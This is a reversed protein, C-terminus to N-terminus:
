NRNSEYIAEVILKNLSNINVRIDKRRFIKFRHEDRYCYYKLRLTASLEFYHLYDKTKKNPILEIICVKPNCFYINSLGAGHPSIVVKASNFIRVQDEFKMTELHYISFGNNILYRILKDENVIRRKKSKARSIYIMKQESFPNLNNELAKYIRKNFDFIPYAEPIYAKKIKYITDKKSQIIEFDDKFKRLTEIQFDKNLENVLLTIKQTKEKKFQFLKPYIYNLWHYYNESWRTNIVLAEEIEVESLLNHFLNLYYQVHRKISVFGTRSIRDNVIPRTYYHEVLIGKKPIEIIGESGHLYINNIELIRYNIIRNSLFLNFHKKSRSPLNLFNQPQFNISTNVNYINEKIVGGSNEFKVIEIPIINKFGLLSLIIKLNYKVLGYLNANFEKNIM